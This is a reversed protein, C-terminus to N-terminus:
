NADIEDEDEKLVGSGTPINSSVEESADESLEKFGEEEEEEESGNNGCSL